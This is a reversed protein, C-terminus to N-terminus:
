QMCHWSGKSASCRSLENFLGITAAKLASIREKKLCQSDVFVGLWWARAAFAQYYECVGSTTPLDCTAWLDSSLKSHADGCVCYLLLIYARYSNVDRPASNGYM